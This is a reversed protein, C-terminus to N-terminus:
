EDKKSSRKPSSKLRVTYWDVKRTLFMILALVILLILTGFLLAYDELRLLIYLCVYLLILLGSILATQRKMELIASAYGVILGITAASAIVYSPTFSLHESLSLLLLYFLSMAFGILLYQFPHIRQSGMMEFLFFAAFTLLIFLIAYKVSRMIKHYHDVSLFLEVGFASQFIANSLMSLDTNETKFSQPYNRSLHSIHYRARFGLGSIEREQPLYAGIFSPDTWTSEVRAETDRGVPVFYASGNGRLRLNVDFVIPEQILEELDPLIVHIGSTFLNTQMVGPEFARGNGNLTLNVGENLGRMDTISVMLAADDWQIDEEPIRLDEMTLADFSGQLRLSLTYVVIDFIGRSRVEPLIEADIGLRDPLFQAYETRKLLNEKDDRYYVTYPIAIIPGTVTQIGGWKESVEYVADDRRDQRETIVARILFLPILLVIIILAIFLMKFMVSDRVNPSLGM